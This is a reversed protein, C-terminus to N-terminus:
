EAVGGDAPRAPTSGAPPAKRPELTIRVPGLARLGPSPGAEDPSKKLSYHWVDNRKERQVVGKEVLRNLCSTALSNVSTARSGLGGQVLGKAVQSAKFWESPHHELFVLTAPLPKMGLLPAGGSPKAESLESGERFVAIAHQLQRLEEELKSIKAMLDTRFEELARVAAQRRSVGDDSM